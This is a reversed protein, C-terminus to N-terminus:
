RAPHSTAASGFSTSTWYRAASADIGVHDLGPLILHEIATSVARLIQPHQLCGHGAPLDDPYEHQIDALWTSVSAELLAPMFRAICARDAATLRPSALVAWGIRSHRVEDSLIRQLVLRVVGSSAQALCTSVYSVALTESIASHLAAFLARHVLPSCVPFASPAPASARRLPVPEDLYREAILRCLESHLVEDDVARASLELVAPPVGFAGLEAHLQAFVSSAALENEARQRWLGGLQRRRERPLSQLADDDRVGAAALLQSLELVSAHTM